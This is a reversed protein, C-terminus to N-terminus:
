QVYHWWRDRGSARGTETTRHDARNHVIVVEYGVALLEHAWGITGTGGSGEVGVIGIAAAPLAGDQEQEDNWRNILALVLGYETKGECLVVRRALFAEPSAKRVPKLTGPAGLALVETKGGASRGM